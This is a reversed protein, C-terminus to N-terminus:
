CRLRLPAMCAEQAACLTSQCLKSMPVNCSQGRQQMSPRDLGLLDWCHRVVSAAGRALVGQLAYRQRDFLQPALLRLLRTHHQGRGAAWTQLFPILRENSPCALHRWLPFLANDPGHAVLGLDLLGEPGLLLSFYVKIVQACASHQLKSGHQLQLLLSYGGCRCGPNPVSSWLLLAHLTMNACRGAAACPLVTM